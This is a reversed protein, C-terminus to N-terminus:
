LAAHHALLNTPDLVTRCWDHVVRWLKHHFQLLFSWRWLLKRQVSFMHFVYSIYSTQWKQINKNNSKNWKPQFTQLRWLRGSCTTLLKSANVEKKPMEPQNRRQLTVSPLIIMPRSRAAGHSSQGHFITPPFNPVCELRWQHLWQGHILTKNLYHWIIKINTDM